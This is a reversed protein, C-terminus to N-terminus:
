KQILPDGVAQFFPSAKSNWSCIGFNKASAWLSFYVSSTNKNDAGFPEDVTTVAGVPTNSYNTGGFATSSYWLTVSGQGSDLDTFLKGNHSEITNILYWSSNGSWKYTGDVTQRASIGAHVGWSVYGAVNAANTAHRFTSYNTVNVYVGNSLHTALFVNPMIQYNSVILSDYFYIANSSVGAALLSPITNSVTGGSGGFSESQNGVIANRVGDLVYNTNAYGGLSASLVPNNSSLPVGLSALKNIYAVCDNTRNVINTMGMNLHTVYPNWDAALSNIQISVSNGVNISPYGNTPYASSNNVRSPLDMFLIVYQPRKAPNNTFWTLLPNFIQSTLNSPTVTEFYAPSVPNTYGLGLVNAGTVNPRHALYYNLCTTSDPSNTNYILLLDQTVDIFNTLAVTWLVNTAGAANSINLSYTGASADNVTFGFYNTDANYINTGNFQWQYTLPFGNTGGPAWATAAFFLSKGYITIVSGPTTRATIMPPTVLYFYAPSSTVSGYGATATATLTYAGAHTAQVNTLTLTPNTKGPLNVGNFQWQYSVGYLGQGKAAFVINSGPVQYQDVPQQTIVPTAPGTRLALAHNAGGAIAIVNKLGVPTVPSGWGVVRGDKQLALTYGSQNGFGGAAIAVVNSLGTPTNTQGFRNDGWCVVTGNQKLAVSHLWGAAVDLVHNLNTPMTCQGSGNYGWALVYGNSVALSHQGGAAIASVNTLSGPVNTQGSANNGWAVVTGDKKLALTHMAQASIVVVNTLNPPVATLQWGFVSGNFGWAKVTGNTFLAVNHNWGCAIMLVGPLNTPQSTFYNDGWSRTTGDNLLALSQPYGGAVMVANTLGFPVDSQLHADDGWAVVMTKSPKALRYFAMDAPQSAFTYRNSTYGIGLWNWPTLLNTTMQIDYPVNNTGGSIDFAATMGSSSTVVLNTLYVPNGYAYSALSSSMMRMQPAYNLSAAEELRAAAELAAYDVKRDDLVFHGEGLPWVDLKFINGPLLPWEPHQMSLFGVSAVQGRRNKPQSDFTVPEVTALAELMVSLDAARDLSDKHASAAALQAHLPNFSLLLGMGFVFIVKFTKM